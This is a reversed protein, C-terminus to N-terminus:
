ILIYLGLSVLCVDFFLLYCLGVTANGWMAQTPILYKCKFVGCLSHGVAMRETGAYSSIVRWVLVHSKTTSSSFCFIVRKSHVSKSLQIALWHDRKGVPEAVSEVHEIPQSAVSPQGVLALLAPCVVFFSPGCISQGVDQHTVAKLLNKSGAGEGFSVM